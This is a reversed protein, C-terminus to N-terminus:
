HSIEKQLQALAIDLDKLGIPKRLFLIPISNFQQLRPGPEDGSILLLSSTYGGQQLHHGLEIGDIDKLRIDLIAIDFTTMVNGKLYELVEESSAFHMVHFDTLLEILVQAVDSDDEVLLINNSLFKSEVSVPTSVEERFLPLWIVFRTGSSVTSHFWLAGGSGKVTSLVNVLGLGKGNPRTSFFPELARAEAEPSMGSGNDEVEIRLSPQTNLDDGIYGNPLRTHEEMTARLTVIGIDESVAQLANQLLNLITSDLDSPDIRIDPLANPIELVMKKSEQLTAISNFTITIRERPDLISHARNRKGSYTLMKEILLGAQHTGSIIQNLHEVSKSEPNVKIKALEAHGLVTTLVNNMDHAIGKAMRGLSEM